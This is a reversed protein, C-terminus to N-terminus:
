KAAGPPPATLAILLLNLQREQEQAARQRKAYNGRANTIRVRHSWVIQEGDYVEYLVVSRELKTRMIATKM